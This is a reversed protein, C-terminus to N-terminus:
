NTEKNKEPSVQLQSVVVKAPQLLSGKYFYGKALVKTVQNHKTGNELHICEMTDPDYDKEIPNIETLSYKKFINELKQRILMLGPDKSFLSANDMDTKLDILQKLFDVIGKEIEKTTQDTIRKELNQYDALARLYQEQKEQLEQKLEDIQENVTVTTKKM